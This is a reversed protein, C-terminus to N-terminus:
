YAREIELPTVVPAEHRHLDAVREGDGLTLYRDCTRPTLQEVIQRVQRDISAILAATSLGPDDAGLWEADCADACAEQVARDVLAATFFDRHHKTVRNTQGAFVLEVVGAQASNPAYFWTVIDAVASERAADESVAGERRFPRGALQKELVARFTARDMRGFNVVKGGVRRVFASDVLQSTNTTAIVFVLHDRFLPRSPDLNQLLTTQIRDHIPDEGRERAWADCEEIVLLLPQEMEGGGPLELPEAALESAEQFFRAINRDSSGVWKSLVESVRLHMVRPPLDELEVGSADSLIELMRRTWGDISYTKGTGPVGALFRFRSRSLRYRDGVSPNDLERRLHTSFEDLYEPPAGLDREIVVDPVPGRHVFRLHGLDDAPPLARFAMRRRPCVIVTSGAGAEGAAIQDELEAAVMYVFKGLEGVQVEVSGDALLREIQAEDGLEGVGRQHHLLAKGGAELWVTDGRRLGKALEKRPVATSALAGDALLVSARDGFDDSQMLEVFTGIRLPGEMMQQILQNLEATKAAFVDESKATAAADLLGQLLKRAEADEDNMLLQRLIEFRMEIPANSDHLLQQIKKPKKAGLAKLLDNM